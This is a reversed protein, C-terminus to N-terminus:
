TSGINIFCIKRTLMFFTIAQRFQNTKGIPLHKKLFERPLEKWSQITITSTLYKLWHKVKEKLLFLFLCPKLADDDIDTIKITRCVDICEDLHMYPDKNEIGYFSPLMNIVSIKIEYLAYGIKPGMAAMRQDYENPIFIERLLRPQEKRDPPRNNPLEAAM